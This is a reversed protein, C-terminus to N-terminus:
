KKQENKKEETNQYATNVTRHENCNRTEQVNQQKLVSKITVEFKKPIELDTIWQM